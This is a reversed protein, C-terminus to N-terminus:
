TWGVSAAWPSRPRKRRSSTQMARDFEPSVSSNDSMTAKVLSRPMLSIAIVARAGLPVAVFDGPAIDMGDPVRYDYAGSLPLPLLVGVRRDGRDTVDSPAKEEPTNSAFLSAM